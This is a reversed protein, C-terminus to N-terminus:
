HSIAGQLLDRLPDNAPQQIPPTTLFRATGEILQTACKLVGPGIDCARAFMLQWGPCHDPIQRMIAAGAGPTRVEAALADITLLGAQVRCSDGSLDVVLGPDDPHGEWHCFYDYFLESSALGLMETAHRGLIVATSASAFPMEGAARALEADLPGGGLQSPQMMAAGWLSITQAVLERNENGIASGVAREVCVGDCIGAVWEGTDLDSEISCGAGFVSDPKVNRWVCNDERTLMGWNCILDTTEDGDDCDGPWYCNCPPTAPDTATPGPRGFFQAILVNLDRFNTVGDGDLDTDPNTTFFHTRMITLDTFNIQNDNNFDADCFNGRYDGDTDRQLPNAVLTCNDSNDDWGDGDSDWVDQAHTAGALLLVSVALGARYPSNM